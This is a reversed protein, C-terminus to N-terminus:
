RGAAVVVVSLVALVALVAVVAVEAVNVRHWAGGFRLRYPSVSGKFNLSLYVELIRSHNFDRHVWGVRGWM